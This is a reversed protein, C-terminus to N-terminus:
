AKTKAEQEMRDILVKLKHVDTSHLYASSMLRGVQLRLADGVEQNICGIKGFDLVAIKTKDTVKWNHLKDIAFRALGYISGVVAIKYSLYGVLVWVALTPLGTVMEILLKLEEM